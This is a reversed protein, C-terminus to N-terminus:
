LLNAVALAVPWGPSSFCGLYGLPLSWLSLCGSWCVGTIVLLCSALALSYTVSELINPMMLVWNVVALGPYM